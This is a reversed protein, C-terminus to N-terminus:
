EANVRFPRIRINEEVSQSTAFDKMEKEIRQVHRFLEDKRQLGKRMTYDYSAGYVVYDQLHEPLGIEKVTDAETVYDLSRAYFIKIGNPITTEPSVDFILTDGVWDYSHIQGTEDGYAIDYADRDRIDKPELKYWDGQENKAIVLHIKQIQKGEEDKFVVINREGEMIDYTGQPLTSFNPDDYNKKDTYQLLISSARNIYNNVSRAIQKLTYKSLNTDTLDQINKVVSNYDTAPNFQM